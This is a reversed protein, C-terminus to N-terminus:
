LVANDAILTSFLFNTLTRSLPPSVSATKVLGELAKSQMLWLKNIALSLVYSYPYRM